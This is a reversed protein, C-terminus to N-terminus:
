MCVASPTVKESDGKRKYEFKWDPQGRDQGSNQQRCSFAPMDRKIM